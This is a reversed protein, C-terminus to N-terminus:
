FKFFAKDFVYIQIKESKEVKWGSHVLKFFSANSSQFAQAFLKAMLFSQIFHYKCM